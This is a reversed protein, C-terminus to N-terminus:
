SLEKIDFGSDGGDDNPKPKPDLLQGMIKM